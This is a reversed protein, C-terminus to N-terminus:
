IPHMEWFNFARPKYVGILMNWAWPAVLACPYVPCAHGTLPRLPHDSNYMADHLAVYLKSVANPEVVVEHIPRPSSKFLSYIYKTVVPLGTQSDKDEGLVMTIILRGQIKQVSKGVQLIARFAFFARSTNSNTQNISTMAPRFFPKDIVQQVFNFIKIKHFKFSDSQKM